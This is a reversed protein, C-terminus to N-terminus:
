ALEAGTESSVTKPNARLEKLTVAQLTFIVAMINHRLIDHDKSSHIIKTRNCYQSAFILSIFLYITLHVVYM